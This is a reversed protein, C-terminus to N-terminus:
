HLLMNWSSNILSRMLVVTGIIIEITWLDYINTTGVLMLLGHLIVMDKKKVWERLHEATEKDTMNKIM